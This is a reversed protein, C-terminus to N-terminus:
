KNHAISEFLNITYRQTVVPNFMEKAFRNANEVIFQAERPNNEYYDFQKVISNRDVEVFHTENRFVPYYWLMESSTYKFVLSKTFYPWVSWNCTNGDMSLHYKYNMQEQQNMQKSFIDRFNPIKQLADGPNMQAVNTINFECIDRHKLSWLCTKIRENKIPDTNGTTTGKWVVKNKKNKWEIDDRLTNHQGGWNGMMYSDPFLVPGKDKKYKAFTFVNDYNKGDDLYTYSDHLQISYYGTLDCSRDVFPFVQHELYEKIYPMRPANDATEYNFM